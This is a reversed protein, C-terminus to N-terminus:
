KLVHEKVLPEPFVSGNLIISDARLAQELSLLTFILCLDTKRRSNLVPRGGIAGGTGEYQRYLDKGATPELFPFFVM